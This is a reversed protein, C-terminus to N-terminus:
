YARATGSHGLTDHVQHLSYKRCAIPEVLAHFLKDDETVVKHLLGYNSIFYKDSPVKNNNILILM